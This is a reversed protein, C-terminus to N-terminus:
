SRDDSVGLSSPADDDRREFAQDGLRSGVGKPGDGEAEGAACDFHHAGGSGLEVDGAEAGFGESGGGALAVDHDDGSSDALFHSGDKAL